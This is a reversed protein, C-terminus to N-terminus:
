DQAQSPPPGTLWQLPLKLEPTSVGLAQSGTLWLTEGKANILTSGKIGHIFVLPPMKPKTTNEAGLNSPPTSQCSSFLTTLLLLSLAGLKFRQMLRVYWRHFSVEM